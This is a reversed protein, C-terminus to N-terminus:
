RSKKKIAMDEEDGPFPQQGMCSPCKRYNDRMEKWSQRHKAALTNGTTMSDVNEFKASPVSPEVGDLNSLPPNSAGLLAVASALLVLRM